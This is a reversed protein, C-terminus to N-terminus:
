ATKKMRRRSAVLGFIGTALLLATGPEPVEVPPTGLKAFFSINSLDPHNPKNPNNGTVLKINFKGEGETPDSTFTIGEFLYSVHSNSGKLAVFFDLTLPLDAPDTASWALSWDGSNSGIDGSLSFAVGGISSSSSSSSDQSAVLSFTGWDNTYPDVPNGGSNSNAGDDFYCDSANGGDWTVDSVNFQTSGSCYVPAASAGAGIFSACILLALGKYTRNFIENINM